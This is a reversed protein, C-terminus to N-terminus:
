PLASCAGRPMQAFFRRRMRLTRSRPWVAWSRRPWSAGVAAEPSGFIGATVVDGARKMGRAALVLGPYVCNARVGCGLNGSELDGVRMLRDFASKRAAHGAIAQFAITAAVSAVNVVAGGQGAGGGLRMARFAPELGLATGVVKVDLIHLRQAADIDVMSATVEIGANNILVDFGGLAAITAEIAKGWQRDCTVDLEVFDV